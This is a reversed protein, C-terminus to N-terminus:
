MGEKIQKFVEKTYRPFDANMLWGYYGSEQSFVQTVPVGKHKGFNFVPVDQDNYVIHGVLDAKRRRESVKHLLDMDNQIPYTGDKGGPIPTVQYKSIM